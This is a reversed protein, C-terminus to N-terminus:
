TVAGPPLVRRPPAKCVSKDGDKVCTHHKQCESSKQCEDGENKKKPDNPPPPSESVANASPSTGEQLADTQAHAVPSSAGLFTGLMLAGSFALAASLYRLM